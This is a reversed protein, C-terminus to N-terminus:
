ISIWCGNGCRTMSRHCRSARDRQQVDVFLQRVKASDSIDCVAAMCDGRGNILALTQAALQEVVDVIVVAAGQAAFLEAMARGIGRGAGTIVTVKDALRSGQTVVSQSM